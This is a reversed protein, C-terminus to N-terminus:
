SRAPSQSPARAVDRYVRALEAAALDWTPLSPACRMHNQELVAVLAQAITEPSADKPVGQVLGDEVLDAIGATDFGVVPTGLALAEMVAVPHAEYESLAALVAAGGLLEAMRDRRDSPIYEIVVADELSLRKVLTRLKQEYSGTGLILLTADPIRERVAPLAEIVHQHGKYRELRGCSVIRGPVPKAQVASPAVDGGNQIIRFRSEELRCTKEFVRQEFRSVAVVLAARRLLPGLARWQMGRLQNRLGSSHGGTHLTVVYPIRRRQAAIMAAVPVATHIGQCHVLDYSGALILRHLSPALYYDRRAPYSRCREVTFGGFDERAPLRGSRDTALVTVDLDERQALRSTVEYTHTEIGGMDPFFRATVVLVRIRRSDVSIEPGARVGREDAVATAPAVAVRGASRAATSGASGAHASVEPLDHLGSEPLGRSSRVTSFYYGAATVALGLIIAASRAAGEFNGAISDRLGRWIGLPLVRSVYHREASLASSSGVRRSVEAKSLGEAWCRRVFYRLSTRQPSVYHEVRAAPDHLLIASPSAQTFRICFETEECGLPRGGVRGMTEVFGGACAFAARRFSMNAGLLNRVRHQDSPLGRHSCGVVWLFEEPFWRPRHDPWHALTLGGVGYVQFDSYPGRLADLWGDLPVADDDLFVIISGRAEDLATNRAGSLGRSHRNPIVVCESMADRCRALLPENHDVVVLLEDDFNMQKMVASIARTLTTWRSETHTCVVVSMSEFSRKDSRMDM